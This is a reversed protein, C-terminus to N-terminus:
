VMAKWSKKGLRISLVAAAIFVFYSIKIISMDEIGLKTGVIAPLMCICVFLPLWILMCLIFIVKGFFSLRAPPQMLLFLLQNNSRPRVGDVADNHCAISFGFIYGLLIGSFISVLISLSNLLM